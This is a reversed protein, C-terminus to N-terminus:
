VSGDWPASVPPAFFSESQRLIAPGYEEWESKAVWLQHFTGLSGLISGGLWSSYKREISNGPSHIKLKQGPFRSNLEADLRSQLGPIFAGGGVLVVHALLPGRQDSDCAM